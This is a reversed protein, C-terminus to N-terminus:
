LTSGRCPGPSFTDGSGFESAKNATTTPCLDWPDEPPATVALASVCLDGVGSMAVPLNEFICLLPSIGLVSFEHSNEGHSGCTDSSTEPSGWERLDELKEMGSSESCRSTGPDYPIQTTGSRPSSVTNPSHRYNSQIPSGPLLLDQRDRVWSWSIRPESNRGTCFFSCFVLPLEWSHRQNHWGQDGFGQSLLFLEGPLLVQRGPIFVGNDTFPVSDSKTKEAAFHFDSAYMSFNDQAYKM